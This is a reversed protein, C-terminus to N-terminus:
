FDKGLKNFFRKEKETMHEEIYAFGLIFACFGLVILIINIVENTCILACYGLLIAWLAFLVKFRNVHKM